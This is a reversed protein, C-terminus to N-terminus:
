ALGLVSHHTLLKPLRDPLAYTRVKLTHKFTSTSSGSTGSAQTNTQSLKAGGKSKRLPWFVM